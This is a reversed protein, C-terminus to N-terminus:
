KKKRLCVKLRKNNQLLKQLEKSVIKMMYAKTILKLKSVSFLTETKMSPNGVIGSDLYKPPLMKQKLCGYVKKPAM